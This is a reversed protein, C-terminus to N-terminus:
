CSEDVKMIDVYLNIIQLFEHMHERRLKKRAIQANVYGELVFPKERFAEPDALLGERIHSDLNETGKLIGLQTAMQLVFVAEELTWQSEYFGTLAATRKENARLAQEFKPNHKKSQYSQSLAALELYITIDETIDEVATSELIQNIEQHLITSVERARLGSHTFNNFYKLMSLVDKVLFPTEDEKRLEM